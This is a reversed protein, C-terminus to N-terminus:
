IFERLNKNYEKMDVHPTYDDSVYDPKDGWETILEYAACSEDGNCSEDLIDDVIDEDNGTLEIIFNLTTEITIDDDFTLVKGYVKFKDKLKTFYHSYEDNNHLNDYCDRIANKITDDEDYEEILEVLTMSDDQPLKSKIYEENETSLWGGEVIDEWYYGTDRDMTDYFTGDLLSEFFWQKDGIKFNGGVYHDMNDVKLIIKKDPEGEVIGLKILGSKLKRSSFLIPKRNYLDSVIEKDLDLISFDDASNYESGFGKIRNEKLILDIIYPFYKQDPKHNHPGKMQYIKGSMDFDIAATLLSKNITFKDNLKKNERLSVLTNGYSTRGCHGMRNCEESSNNTELDVWYYGIGNERYDLIIDNKEIYDISGDGIKLSKHWEYSEKYLEGFDLTEYPKINGNLGVRYWDMISQVQERDEPPIRNLRDYGYDLSMFDSASLDERHKYLKKGLWVALNGCMNYLIEAVNPQFGIKNVLIDVKSAETIYQHQQETILIKM